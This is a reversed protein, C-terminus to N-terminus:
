PIEEQVRRGCRRNGTEGWGCDVLPLSDPRKPRVPEGKQGGPYLSGVAVSLVVVITIAIKKWSMM